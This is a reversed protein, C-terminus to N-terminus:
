ISVLRYRSSSGPRASGSFSLDLSVIPLGTRSRRPKRLPLRTQRTMPNMLLNKRPRSRRVDMELCCLLRRIETFFVCQFVSFRTGARLFSVVAIVKKTWRRLGSLLKKGGCQPGDCNFNLHLVDNPGSRSASGDLPRGIAIWENLKSDIRADKQFCNECLNDGTEHNYFRAGRIAGKRGCAGKAANACTEGEHDNEVTTVGDAAMTTGPIAIYRAQQEPTEKQFCAECLDYGDKIRRQMANRYRIGRIKGESGCDAGKDCWFGVHQDLPYLKDKHKKMLTTGEGGRKPGPGPVPRPVPGPSETGDKHLIAYGTVPLLRHGGVEGAVAVVGAAMQMPLDVGFYEWKLDVTSLGSPLQDPEIMRQESPARWDQRSKDLWTQVHLNRVTKGKQTKKGRVFPFLALIAGSIEENGSHQKYKYWSQWFGQIQPTDVTGAATERFKQLVGMLPRTWWAMPVGVKQSLAEFKGVAVLIEDWDQVSGGVTIEPIGCRTQVTYDFYESMAEMLVIDMAANAIASATSLVPHIMEHWKAGIHKSIQESFGGPGSTVRRWVRSFDAAHQEGRRKVEEDSVSAPDVPMASVHSATPSAPVDDASVAAASAAPAASVSVTQVSGPAPAQGGRTAGGAARYV